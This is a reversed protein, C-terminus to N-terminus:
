GFAPDNRAALPRRANGSGMGRRSLPELDRGHLAAPPRGRASEAKWDGVCLAFKAPFLPKGTPRAGEGPTGPEAFCENKGKLAVGFCPEVKASKARKTNKDPIEQQKSTPADQATGIAATFAGIVLASLTRKRM